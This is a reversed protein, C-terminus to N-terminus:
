VKQKQPNYLFETIFYIVTAIFPNFFTMALILLTLIPRVRKRLDLYLIIAVVARTFYNVSEIIIRFYDMNKAGNVGMLLTVLFMVINPFFLAFLVVSFYKKTQSELTKL